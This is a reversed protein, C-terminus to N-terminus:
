YLQRTLQGLIGIGRVIQEDSPTSFNMRFSTTPDSDHMTFASGPVVAVKQAVAKRCFDMMDAGQPLTCWLFLGGEPHTFSVAPHFEKEMEGLMLALKKRYMGCLMEIHADLDNEALFRECILQSLITTHVDSCQKAVIVKQLLDRPALVYGVRLGPSLIKSFSGLYIVLGETDLSKITPVPTGSYRLDGYPNDEMILVSYKKALEYVAKRKELSMTIGSPNQFNPILYLFRVNKQTKLATELKEINIGDEEMEVGVLNAQYSRFTNLAGIFSPDECLITDGENVLCKTVLEIGQQAGSVMILEDFQRRPIGYHSETLAKMRERLPTYGETVSYQLATIAEEGFIEDSISRITESPFAQSSPNGAAFSIISPDQTAKLIERIASPQLSAMRQSIPYNM